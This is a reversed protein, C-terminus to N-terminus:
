LTGTLSELASATIQGTIRAVIRGDPGIVYSEPLGRVGYSLAIRGGFDPLVPWEGGEKAFFSRTADIDKEDFAVAVVAPSRDGKHANTFRVLEPHEQRCPVCWTAFFNLVIYRGRLSSLSVTRGDLATGDVAPAVGGVLPSVAKRDEAAPRTALTVTLALVALAVALAIWRTKM